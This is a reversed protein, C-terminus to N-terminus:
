EPLGPTGNLSTIALQYLYRGQRALRERKVDAVGNMILM